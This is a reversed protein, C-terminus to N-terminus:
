SLDKERLDVVDQGAAAAAKLLDADRSALGADRELTLWLYAADFLSLGRGQALLAIRGVEPASLAPALGIEYEDLRVFAESLDFGADRRAQRVLLNAVEWQFVDPAILEYDDLAALLRRAPATSQSALLWSAAASADVVLTKM